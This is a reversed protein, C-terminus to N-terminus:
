KQIHPHQQFTKTNPNDRIHYVQDGKKILKIAQAKQYSHQTFTTRTSTRKNQEPAQKYLQSQVEFSSLHGQILSGPQLRITAEQHPDIKKKYKFNILKTIKRASSETVILM